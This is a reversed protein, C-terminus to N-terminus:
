NVRMKKGHLDVIGGASPMTQILPKEKKPPQVWELMEINVPVILTNDGSFCFESRFTVIKAPLFHEKLTLLEDITPMYEGSKAFVNVMVAKTEPITCVTLQLEENVAHRQWKYFKIDTLGQEEFKLRNEEEIVEELKLNIKSM